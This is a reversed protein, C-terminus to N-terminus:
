IGSLGYLLSVSQVAVAKPNSHPPCLCLTEPSDRALAPQRTGHDVREGYEM